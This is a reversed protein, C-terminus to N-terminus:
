FLSEIAKLMPIGSEYPVEVATETKSQIRDLYVKMRHQELNEQDPVAKLFKTARMMSELGTTSSYQEGKELIVETGMHWFINTNKIDLPDLPPVLPVLDTPTVFRILKLENFKKAGGFNTVKPQGFTIVEDLQYGEKEFYIALIVAIAGGLSHGTTQIQYEPRLFPQVDKFIATAAQAFGSHLWIGSISDPQLKLKIDVLVNQLNATGRISLIHQKEKHNTILFYNVEMKPITKYRELQFDLQQAASAALDEDGYTANALEAYQRIRNFDIEAALTTISFLAICLNFLLYLLYRSFPISTSLKM